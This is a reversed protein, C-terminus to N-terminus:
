YNLDNHSNLLAHIGVKLKLVILCDNKSEYFDFHFRRYGHYADITAKELVAVYFSDKCLCSDVKLSRKELDQSPTNQPKIKNWSIMLFVPLLCTLLYQLNKTKM